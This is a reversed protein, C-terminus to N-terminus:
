IWFHYFNEVVEIRYGCKEYLLCAEKNDLQTVVQSIMLGDKIFQVEVKQILAKALGQGRYNEDVAVMIIDGRNNKEGVAIMGAIQEDVKAVFVYKAANGKVCNTTWEKYMKKDLGMQQLKPDNGFRSREAIYYSLDIIKQDPLSENYLEIRSDIASECDLQGIDKVYTVKRDTLLGGCIKAAEQAVEDESASAWFVLSIGQKKLQTLAEKLEPLSLADPVIKAVGFGFLKSDFDLLETKEMNM